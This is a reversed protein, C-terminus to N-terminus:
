NCWNINTHNADHIQKLDAVLDYNTSFEYHYRFFSCYHTKLVQASTEHVDLLLVREKDPLSLLIDM